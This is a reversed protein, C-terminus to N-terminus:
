RKRGDSSPRTKAAGARGKKGGAQTGGAADDAWTQLLLHTELAEGAKLHHEVFSAIQEPSAEPEAVGASGLMRALKQDVPVAHGDFSLLSVAAAVYPTMGPLTDLFVRVERKGLSSLAGLSMAHARVFVEQLADHMREAREVANPYREGLLAVVEDPHSVRLDNVDVLSQMLRHYAAEAAKRTSEWQLFAVVLRVVPDHPAPPEVPYDQKLRRLLATLKRVHTASHKV